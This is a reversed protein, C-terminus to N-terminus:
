FNRSNNQVMDCMCDDTCIARRQFAIRSTWCTEKLVFFNTPDYLSKEVVLFMRVFMM